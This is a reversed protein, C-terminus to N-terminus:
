QKLSRVIKRVKEVDIPKSLFTHVGMKKAMAVVEEENDSSIIVVPTSIKHAKVYELVDAGTAYPMHIDSFVLDYQESALFSLAKEGNNALQVEAGELRLAVEMTKLVVPDDECVLVKM